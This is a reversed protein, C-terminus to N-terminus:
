APQVAPRGRRARAAPKRAPAKPKAARAAAAAGEATVKASSARTRNSKPPASCERNAAPAPKPKRGPKAPPPLRETKVARVVGRLGNVIDEFAEGYPRWKSIPKGDKPLLKYRAMRTHRWQCEEVLAVM